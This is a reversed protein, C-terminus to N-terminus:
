RAGVGAAQLAEAEEHFWEFRVVRGERLTWVHGERKEFPVGGARGRAVLTVFCLVKDNAEIMEDPEHRYSEFAAKNNADVERWGNHGSRTGPEVAYPPNVFEFGPDLFPLVDEVPDDGNWAEYLRRVLGLNTLAM